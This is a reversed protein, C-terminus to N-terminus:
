HSNWTSWPSSNINSYIESESFILIPFIKHNLNWSRLIGKSQCLVQLVQFPRSMIMEIMNRKHGDSSLEDLFSTHWKNRKMYIFDSLVSTLHIMKEHVFDIWTHVYVLVINSELYHILISRATFMVLIM